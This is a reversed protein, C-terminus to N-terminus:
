EEISPFKRSYKKIRQLHRSIITKLRTPDKVTENTPYKNMLIDSIELSTKGEKQLELAQHAIMVNKYVKGAKPRIPLEKEMDKEIDDWNQNIWNFLEKKTCKSSIMIAGVQECDDGMHHLFQDIEYVNPIYNIPSEENNPIDIFVHFQVLLFLRFRYVEPLQFQIMIGNFSDKMFNYWENVNKFNNDFESIPWPERISYEDIIEDLQEVFDSINLLSSLLSLTVKSPVVKNKVIPYDAHLFTIDDIKM